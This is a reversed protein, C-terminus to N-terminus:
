DCLLAHLLASCHLATRGIHYGLLAALLMSEQPLEDMVSAPRWRWSTCSSQGQSAPCGFSSVQAELGALATDPVHAALLPHMGEQPLAKARM